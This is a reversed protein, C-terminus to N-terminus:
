VAVSGMETGAMLMWAGGLVLAIGTGRAIWQGKPALKELGVAIAVLAVMPLNIVGVVFLLAMLAWCCGVCYVGHRVGMVFAGSLGKRWEAMLFSVPSRCRTLCASKLPTFQFVGAGILLAATLLPNVSVVMSSILGMAQFMWHVAAAALSFGAWMVVYASVFVWTAAWRGGRRALQAFMLFMPVASPLMMAAMMVSWMLFVAMATPVSWDASMPMMLHALPNTMDLVAWALFAWGLLAATMLTVLLVSERRILVMVSM